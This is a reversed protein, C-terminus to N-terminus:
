NVMIFGKTGTGICGDMSVRGIGYVGNGPLDMGSYTLGSSYSIHNEADSAVATLMKVLSTDGLCHDHLLNSIIEM